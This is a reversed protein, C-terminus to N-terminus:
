PSPLPLSPLSLFPLPGVELPVPTSPPLSPLSHSPFPPPFTSPSLFPLFPIAPGIGFGSSHTQANASSASMELMIYLHHSKSCTQRKKKLCYSGATNTAIRHNMLIHMYNNRRRNSRVSRTEWPLALVYKLHLPCKICLKTFHKNRSM